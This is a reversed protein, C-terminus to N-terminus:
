EWVAEGAEAEILFDIYTKAKTLDELGDGKKGHRWLYKFANGLCFGRYGEPGLVESLVDICEYKDEKYYDPRIRKDM